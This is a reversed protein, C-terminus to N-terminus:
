AAVKRRKATGRLYAWDVDPRLEECSVVGRTRRDVAICLSEGAKRFGGAVLNLYGTTVGCGKAFAEREPMSLSYYHDRFQMTPPLM